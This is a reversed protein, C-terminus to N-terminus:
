FNSRAVVDIPRRDDKHRQRGFTELHYMHRRQQAFELKEDLHDKYKGSSKGPAMAYKSAAECVLGAKNVWYCFICFINATLVGSFYLHLLTDMFEFAAKEQDSKGEDDSDHDWSDLEWNRDRPSREDWSHVKLM